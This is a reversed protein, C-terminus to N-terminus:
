LVGLKKEFFLQVYEKGLKKEFKKRISNIAVMFHHQDIADQHRKEKLSIDGDHYVEENWELNRKYDLISNKIKENMLENVKRLLM